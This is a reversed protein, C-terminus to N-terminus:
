GILQLQICLFGTSSTGCSWATMETTSTPSLSWDEHLSTTQCVSPATPRRLSLGELSRQWGRMDLHVRTILFVFTYLVICFISTTKVVSYKLYWCKISFIHIYMIFIWVTSLIGEPSFISKRALTNIQLTYRVHPILLQAFLPLFILNLTFNTTFCDIWIVEFNVLPTM